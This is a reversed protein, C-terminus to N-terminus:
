YWTTKTFVIKRTWFTKNHIDMEYGACKESCIKRRGPPVEKGCVKCFVIKPRQPSNKTKEKYICKYCRDKGFFDAEKHDVLCEPCIM